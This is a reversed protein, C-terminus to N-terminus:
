RVAALVAKNSRASVAGVESGIARGLAGPSQGPQATVQVTTQTSQNVTTAGGGSRARVQAIQQANFREIDAAFQAETSGTALKAAQTIPNLILERIDAGIQRVRAALGEIGGAAAQWAADFSSRINGTAIAVSGALNTGLLTDIWSVLWAVSDGISQIASSFFAGLTRAFWGTVDLLGAIMTQWLAAILVASAQWPTTLQGPVFSGFWDFFAAITRTNRAFVGEFDAAMDDDASTWMGVLAGIAIATETFFRTTVAGAAKLAPVWSMIVRTLEEGSKAADDVIGFEELITGIISRRGELFAFLDDLILFPILFRMFAGVLRNVWPLLTRIVGQIGGFRTVIRSLLGIFATLGAAKLGTALKTRNAKAWDNAAKAARVLWATTSQISPLFLRVLQVRLGLMQRQFFFIERKANSAAVSFDKDFVVGFEKARALNREIEERTSGLAPLLRMGSDGFVRIALGAAETQDEMEALGVALDSFVDTASRLTGDANKLSLDMKEFIDAGEGAGRAAFDEVRDAMDTLADRVDDAEAGVTGGLAEWQQFEDFGVRAQTAFKGMAAAADITESVFSALQQAAFGAGIALFADSLAGLDSTLTQASDSADNLEADAQKLDGTQVDIKFFALLERLAM